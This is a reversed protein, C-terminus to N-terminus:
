FKKDETFIEKLSEHQEYTYHTTNSGTTKSIRLGQSNYQYKGLSTTGEKVEVLRDYADYEM